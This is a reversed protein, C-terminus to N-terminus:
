CKAAASSSAVRSQFSAVLTKGMYAPPFNAILKDKPPLCNKIHICNVYNEAWRWLNPFKDKTFVDLGLSEQITRFSSAVFNSVIDVVGISNGGFFKKDGLENELVKLHEGAEAKDKEYQEGTSWITKWLAPMCEHDVFNTWFRARSKDYPDQPLIPNTKWTEDIYELIVISESLPKGNHLLVPIKKYVPNYQQLLPSKNTLDEEVYEYQVGKLKLAIEVSRSFPSLWIGLLKVEEM